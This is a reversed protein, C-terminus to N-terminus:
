FLTLLYEQNSLDEADGLHGWYEILVASWQFFVGIFIQSTKIHAHMTKNGKHM